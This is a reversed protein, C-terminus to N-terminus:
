SSILLSTLPQGPFNAGDDRPHQEGHNQSPGRALSNPQHSSNISEKSARPFEHIMSALTKWYTDGPLIGIRGEYSCTWEAGGFLSRHFRKKPWKPPAPASNQIPAATEWGRGGDWIKFDVFKM